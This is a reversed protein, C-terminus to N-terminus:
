EEPAFEEIICSHKKEPDDRDYSVGVLFIPEERDKLVDPYHKKHIQDLATEADKNWKLEVVMIPM